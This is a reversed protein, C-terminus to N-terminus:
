KIRWFSNNFSIALPIIVAAAIVALGLVGGIIWYLKKSKNQTKEYGKDSSLKKVEKLILDDREESKYFGDKVTINTDNLVRSIGTFREKSSNNNEEM